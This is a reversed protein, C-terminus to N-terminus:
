KQARALSRHKYHLTEIAKNVRELLVESVGDRGNIVRSVTAESVQAMRAVERITIVTKNIIRNQM